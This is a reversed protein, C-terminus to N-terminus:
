IKGSVVQTFPEAYLRQPNGAFKRFREQQNVGGLLNKGLQAQYQQICLKELM